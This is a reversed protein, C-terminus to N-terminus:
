DSIPAVIMPMIIHKYVAGEPQPDPTLLGPAMRANMDIVVTSAGMVDLAEGLFRPSFSIGDAEGEITASIHTDAKGREGRASKLGIRGEVADLAFQIVSDGASTNFMSFTRNAMALEDRDVTIHTSFSEPILGRFNPFLGADLQGTVDVDGIRFTARSRKENLCIRVSEISGNLLRLVQAAANRPLLMVLRGDDDPSLLSADLGETLTGAYIALRYGDAGVFTFASDTFEMYVCNLVPRTTEKAVSFLVRNLGEKLDAANMTVCIAVDAVSPADPYDNSERQTFTGSTREGEVEIRPDTTRRRDYNFNLTGDPLTKVYDFFDRAPFLAVGERSVEAKVRSTITTELDTATLSINDDGARVLVNSLVPMASRTPIAGRVAALGRQLEAKECTIQM